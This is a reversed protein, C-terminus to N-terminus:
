YPRTPSPSTYLLCACIEMFRDVNEPTVVACMREQSESALIEAATMNQARLPVNDLNVEMGGDGSAALESTACALGAGGLDQIGVVVGAHYLDLCCEILVKEAFPDGVQVAPLKREAGDEFTDSSDRICM